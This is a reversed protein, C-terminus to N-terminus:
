SFVPEIAKGLRDRKEYLFKLHHNLHGVYKEIQEALNVRGMENHVAWREFDAPALRELLDATMRRVAAFAQVGLQANMSEYHLREAFRNENYGILLPHDEAVTRKMRDAGILDSDVLHMVIQQISWTGPVPFANLDAPTLGAIAPTLLEGGRAYRAILQKM